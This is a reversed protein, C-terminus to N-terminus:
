RASGRQWNLSTLGLLVLPIGVGILLGLWSIKDLAAFLDFQNRPHMAILYLVPLLPLTVYSHKRVGFMDCILRSAAYYWNGATTFVAAVWVGIFVAEARELVLGPVNVTKVLELLPWTLRQLEEHGFAVIAAIEVLLYVLGVFGIGLLNARMYRVKDSYCSAFQLIIEYGQYVFITQMLARLIGKTEVPVLPLLRTFNANQFPLVGLILLPVVMLPFLFENVRLVTVDKTFCLYLSVLLMSGVIVELPTEVLVATVVVEGFTRAVMAVALLWYAVYLLLFPIGLLQGLWPFRRSSLTDIVFDSFKQGQMRVFLATLMWVAALSVFFGLFVAIWGQQAAYFTTTRPM